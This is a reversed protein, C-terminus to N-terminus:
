GGLQQLATHLPGADVFEAPDRGEGGPFLPLVSAISELKPEPNDQFSDLIDTYSQDLVSQDTQKSYQGLIRKSEDSNGRIFRLAQVYGKMFAVTEDQHGKVYKRTSLMGDVPYPYKEGLLQHAGIKEAAFNYPAPSMTVQVIGQQLAALEAPQTGLYTISVDKDPTLGERKLIARIVVDDAGGAKTSGIAKGRLDQLTKISPLAMLHVNSYPVHMSLAVTDAGKLQAQISTAPAADVIALEGSTLAPIAVVSGEVYTMKLDLNQQKFFGKEYAVWMPLDNSGPTAYAADMTLPKGSASPKAAAETSAPAGPKAAASAASAAPASTSAVVSPSQSSSAATGGCGALM